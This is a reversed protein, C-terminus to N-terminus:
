PQRRARKIRVRYLWKNIYFCHVCMHELAPLGGLRICERLNHPTSHRAHRLMRIAKRLENTGAMGRAREKRVGDGCLNYFLHQDVGLGGGGVGIGLGPIHVQNATRCQLVQAGSENSLEILISDVRVERNVVTLADM